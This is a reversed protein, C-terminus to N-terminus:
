LWAAARLCVQGRPFLCLPLVAHHRCQESFALTGRSHANQVQGNSATPSGQARGTSSIGAAGRGGILGCDLPPSMLCAEALKYHGSRPFHVESSVRGLFGRSPRWSLSVGRVHLVESVPCFRIYHDHGSVGPSCGPFRTGGRRGVGSWFCSKPPHTPTMTTLTM